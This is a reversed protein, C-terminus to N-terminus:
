FPLWRKFYRAGKAVSPAFGFVISMNPDESGAVAHWWGPPLYLAEGARVTVDRAHPAAGPAWADFDSYVAPVIGRLWCASAAMFGGRPQLGDSATPPFLRFLKSGQLVVTLNETPDFHLPTRQGGAGLYLSPTGPVQPGLLQGFRTTLHQSVPELLTALEPLVAGVPVNAAYCGARREGVACLEDLVSDLRRRDRRAYPASSRPDGFTLPNTRHTDAQVPWWAFFGRSAKRPLRVIVERHGCLSRLAPLFDGTNDSTGASGVPLSQPWRERLASSALVAPRSSAVAAAFDEEDEISAASSASPVRAAAALAHEDLGCRAHVFRVLACRLPGHRKM